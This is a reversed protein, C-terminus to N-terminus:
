TEIWIQTPWITGVIMGYAKAGSPTTANDFNQVRGEAVIAWVARDYFIYPLDQAFREAVQQYAHARVGPDSSTRGQQLFTEVQPDTNRAFNTSLSGFITTPSWFVYNLDPDVAAFQRWEYAQFKGALANNIFDAQQFQALSVKMGVQELQSQLFQAAQIAASSTTSGFTFSVPQGTSAQVEQILAKARSPNFAPYSTPAFYSTGPVFPQTSEPNLSKNIVQKYAGLDIAMAMAQRVRLDNMPPQDLNLLIFDMDPEGIVGELDDIFGYSSNTRFQDIIQAVDVHMIDITGALLSNSRSDPDPIPRFTIADLYPMGSRWYAPNRTLSFHDNPVWSEYKFPGTGVPVVQGSGSSQAIVSPGVIYGANGGIGGTLYYDFPVWPQKLTVTVEQASTAVVSEIVPKLAVSGLEGSIVHNMSNAIAHADCATGDHFLVGPRATITWQSYDGNPTVSEALYPQVSGGASIITLPDYVSRAYLVGSEDFNALAPDLSSQEAEVGFVLSGGRRPAASSVGDRSGSNVSRSSGSSCASLLTGGGVGAAAIGAAGLLGRALFSRRDIIKAM